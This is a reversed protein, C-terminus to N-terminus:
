FALVVGIETTEDDVAAVNGDNSSTSHNVRVSAAGVTYAASFGTVDETISTSGAVSKKQTEQEGYSVAFNDNVNFAISMAEIGYGATATAGSDQEGVRYGVSVPGTSYVIHGVMNTTDTTGASASNTSTNVSRGAGVTLGDIPSMSLYIDTTSGHAGVGSSASEGTSTSGEGNTYGASISVGAVTNKYGIVNDSGVGAIGSNARVGTWSEEYATPLLDDNATLGVLAGFHSDFSLVGADGMDLTQFNSGWGTATDNISRTASLTGFGVDGSASFTIGSNAGFSNGTVQNGANGGTDVYTLEVGGSVAMEATNASFAVLSGALATLGVKKLNIM